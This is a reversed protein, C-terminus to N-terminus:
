FEPEFELVCRTLPQGGVSLQPLVRSAKRGGIPPRLRIGTDGSEPPMQGDNATPLCDRSVRQGFDGFHRQETNRAVLGHTLIGLRALPGLWRHNRCHEM